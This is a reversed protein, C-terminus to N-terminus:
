FDTIGIIKERLAHKVLFKCTSMFTILVSYKGNKHITELKRYKPVTALEMIVTLCPFYGTKAM